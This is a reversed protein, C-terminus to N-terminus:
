LFCRRNGQVSQDAPRGLVSVTHKGYPVTSYKRFIQLRIGLKVSNLSCKMVSERGKGGVGGGIRISKIM